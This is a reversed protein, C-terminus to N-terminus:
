SIWCVLDARRDRLAAMAEKGNNAVRHSYGHAELIEELFVVTEETDEVILIEKQDSMEVGRFAPEPRRVEVL